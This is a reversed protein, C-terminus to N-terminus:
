IVKEKDKEETEGPRPSKNRPKEKDKRTKKHKKTKKEKEGKGEKMPTKGEVSSSLPSAPQDSPLVAARPPSVARDM